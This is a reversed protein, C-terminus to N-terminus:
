LAYRDKGDALKKLNFIAGSPTNSAAHWDIDKDFLQRLDKGAYYAYWMMDSHNHEVRLQYRYEVLSDLVQDFTEETNM